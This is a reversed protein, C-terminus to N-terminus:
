QSCCVGCYTGKAKITMKGDSDFKLYTGHPIDAELSTPKIQVIVLKPKHFTIAGQYGSTPPECTSAISTGFTSKKTQKPKPRKMTATISYTDGTDCCDGASITFSSARKLRVTYTNVSSKGAFENYKYVPGSLEVEDTTQMGDSAPPVATDEAFALSAISLAVAAALLMSIMYRKM